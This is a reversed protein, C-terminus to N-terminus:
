KLKGSSNVVISRMQDQIANVRELLQTDSFTGTRFDIDLQEVIAKAKESYQPHSGIHQPLGMQQAIASDRPLAIGNTENHLNYLGKEVLYQIADSQKAAERTILHHASLGDGNVLGLNTRLRQTGAALHALENVHTLTRTTGLSGMGLVAFIGVGGNATSIM